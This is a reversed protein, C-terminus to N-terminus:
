KENDEPVGRLQEDVLDHDQKTAKVVFVQGPCIEMRQFKPFRQSSLGNRAPNTIADMGLEDVLQKVLGVMGYSHSPFLSKDRKKAMSFFPLPLAGSTNTAGYKGGDQWADWYGTRWDEIIYIGGPKLHNDFLHWFSIKTFEAIHSADDIIIDFGEAACEAGIRDLLDPDRQDGQYVSIKGTPDDIDVQNLDLGIIKGNRFFDRWMLLSGGKNIGIELLKVDQNALSQFYREYNNLYLQSKDTDYKYAILNQGM